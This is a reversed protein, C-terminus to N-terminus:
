GITKVHPYNLAQEFWEELPVSLELRGREVLKAIEWCPHMETITLMPSRVIVGISPRCLGRLWTRSGITCPTQTATLNHSAVLMKDKT